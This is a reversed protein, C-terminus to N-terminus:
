KRRILALVGLTLISLLYSTWSTDLWYLPEDQRFDSNGIHILSGRGIVAVLWRNVADYSFEQVVLVGFLVIGPVFFEALRERSLFAPLATGAGGVAAWLFGIVFLMAFGYFVSLSDGSHTYAIVQMYSISGGFAWGI